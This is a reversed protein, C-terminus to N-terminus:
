THKNNAQEMLSSWSLGSMATAVNSKFVRDYVHDQKEEDHRRKAMSGAAAVTEPIGDSSASVDHQLVILASQLLSM